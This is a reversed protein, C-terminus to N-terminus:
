WRAGVGIRGNIIGQGLDNRFDHDYGARGYLFWNRAVDYNVGVKPGITAGDRVGKHPAGREGHWFQASWVSRTTSHSRTKM